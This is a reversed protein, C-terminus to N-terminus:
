PAPQKKPNHREIEVGVAAVRPLIGPKTIRIRVWAAHFQAFIFDAISQALSELLLFDRKALESRLAQCVEGYHITQNIDDQAGANDPLGIDLDIVLTQPQQREWEYVGILTEAKMGHLFIKDM